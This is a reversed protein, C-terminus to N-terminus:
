NQWAVTTNRPQAHFRNLNDVRVGTTFGSAHDNGTSRIKAMARQRRPNLSEATLMVTETGRNDVFRTARLDDDTSEQDLRDVFCANGADDKEVVDAVQAHAAMACDPQHDGQCVESANLRALVPNFGAYADDGGSEM